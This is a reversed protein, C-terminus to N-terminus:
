LDDFLWNELQPRILEFEEPELVVPQSDHDFRVFVLLPNLPTSVTYEQDDYFFNALLQFEETELEDEDDGLDLTIIDDEEAEPVRGKVTLTLATWELTLDQEALVARATLFVQSLEEDTLDILSEDGNADDAWVFIEVPTDIPLLLAYEDSGIGISQEVYCDITRGKEDKVMLVSQPEGASGDSHGYSGNSNQISGDFKSAM